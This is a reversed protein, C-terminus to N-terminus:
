EVEDFNFDLADRLNALFAIKQNFFAIGESSECWHLKDEFFEIQNNLNEIIEKLM